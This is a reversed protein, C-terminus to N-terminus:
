FQRVLEMVAPINQRRANGGFLHEFMKISILVNNEPTMSGSRTQRQCLKAVGRSALDLLFLPCM